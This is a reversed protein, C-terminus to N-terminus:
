SGWVTFAHAALGCPSGLDRQRKHCGSARQLLSMSPIQGPVEVLLPDHWYCEGCRCASVRRSAYASPPLPQPPQQLTASACPGTVCLNYAHTLAGSALLLSSHSTHPSAQVQRSQVVWRQGQRRKDIFSAVRSTHCKLILLVSCEEAVVRTTTDLCRGRGSGQM